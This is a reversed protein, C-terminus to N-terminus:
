LSCSPVYPPPCGSAVDMSCYPASGGQLTCCIGGAGCCVGCPDGGVDQCSNTTATAQVCLQGGACPGCDFPQGCADAGPGCQSPRSACPDPEEPCVNCQQYNGPCTADQSCYMSQGGLCCCTDGGAQDRCYTCADNGEYPKCIGEFCLEGEMCAGCEVTKGCAASTAPGCAVGAAVCIDALGCVCSNGTCSQDPDCTNACVTTVGCFTVSGCEIGSCPNAPPVCPPEDVDGDCDDDIENGPVETAGPNVTWPQPCPVGARDCCDGQDETWGDGDNDTLRGPGFGDRFIPDWSPAADLPGVGAACLIIALGLWGSLLVGSRGYRTAM